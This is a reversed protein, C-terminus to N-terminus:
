SRQHTSVQLAVRLLPLLTLTITTDKNKALLESLKTTMACFGSPNGLPKQKDNAPVNLKWFLKLQNISQIGAMPQITKALATLFDNHTSELMFFFPSCADITLKLKPTQAPTKVNIYAM